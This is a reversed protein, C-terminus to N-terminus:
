SFMSCIYCSRVTILYYYKKNLFILSIDLMDNFPKNKYIYATKLRLRCIINSCGDIATNVGLIAWILM